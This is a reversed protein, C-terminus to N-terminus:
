MHYAAGVSFTREDARGEGFLQKGLLNDFAFQARVDLTNNIAFTGGVGVPVRYTDGFGGAPPDLIGLLAVSLGLNLQPTAMFGVRVPVTLIEKNGTDRKNAGINLSPDFVFNLPGSLLKGKVGVRVSLRTDDGFLTDLGGHAGVDMTGSRSFSFLGDLSINNYVKACGNSQGSLCLGQGAVDQFIESGHNSALGVTLVDTVGYYVNPVISIPKGSAGKSVGVAVDGDVGIGGQRLTINAPGAPAVQAPATAAVAPAAEGGAAAAPPPATGEAPPATNDQAFARGAGGLTALALGFASCVVFRVTRNTM